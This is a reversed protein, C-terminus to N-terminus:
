SISYLTTNTAFQNLGHLYLRVDKLAAKVMRWDFQEDEDFVMKNREARLRLIHREDENLWWAESPKSPVVIWILPALSMSLLGEVLYMWQWGHLGAADIQSLGFALLGGFAGSMASAIHTIIQRPGYEDRNYYMTLYVGICPIVGAEAVGLLIRCALLENWNTVFGTGITVASWAITNATVVSLEISM